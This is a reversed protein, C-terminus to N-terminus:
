ITFNESSNTQFEKKLESKQYHLFLGSRDLSTVLLNCSLYSIESKEFHQFSKTRLKQQFSNQKFCWGDHWLIRSLIKNRKVPNKAVPLTGTNASSYKHAHDLNVQSKSHLNCQLSLSLVSFRKIEKLFMKLSFLNSQSM